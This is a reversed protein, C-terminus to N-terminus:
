TDNCGNISGNPWYAANAAISCYEFRQQLAASKGQVTYQVGAADAVPVRVYEARDWGLSNYAVILLGQQTATVNVNTAAAVHTNDMARLLRAAQPRTAELSTACISVNLLPCQWLTINAAAAATGGNISAARGQGTNVNQGGMSQQGHAATATALQQVGHPLVISTPSIATGVLQVDFLSSLPWIKSVFRAVVKRGLRCYDQWVALLTCRTMSASRQLLSRSLPHDRATQQNSSNSASSSGQSAFPPSRKLLQELATIVVQSAEELGLYLYRAYDNAVAQKATGTVADHHQSLSVASELLDLGPPASSSSSEHERGGDSVSMGNYAQGNSGRSTSSGPHTSHHEYANTSPAQATLHPTIAQLQRAAALYATAQRIYGKSAPRSTFYGTWYCHACDAYPFFDDTKIPWSVNSYNAKAATYAAPTSYFVNVRGDANVYHILRDLNIFNAHSNAFQFDSGMMFLIDNGAMSASWTNAWYVFQNVRNPVNYEPSDPDDVIPADWQAWDFNFGPPPGYNGSPYNHTWVQGSEGWSLSPRWLLELQKRSLRLRMDQYDARGFFLAEYGAAASMLAAQTASHGFPDIQWAISPTIGFTANLFRHGRTTQDIMAVYHAAAEDHQVFGGNVFDLRGSAVLERVQQQVGSSQQQWWKSFFSMEAYCFKRDPNDQLAQVVTSLVHQVAAMQIDQRTGWYYQEFTKLWGSDDHTHAVLHVNLKNPDRSSSTNYEAAGAVALSALLCGCLLWTSAVPVM